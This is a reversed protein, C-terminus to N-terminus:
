VSSCYQFVLSLKFNYPLNEYSHTRWLSSQVLATARPTASRHLVCSYSFRWLHLFRKKKKGGNKGDQKKSNEEDTGDFFREMPFYFYLPIEGVV